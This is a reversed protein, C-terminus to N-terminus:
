VTGVYVTISSTQQANKSFYLLNLFVILVDKGPAGHVAVFGILVLFIVSTTKTKM